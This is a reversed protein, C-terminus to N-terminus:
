IYTNRAINFSRARKPLFLTSIPRRKADEEIEEERADEAAGEVEHVLGPDLGEEGLGAAALGGAALLSDLLFGLDERARFGSTGGSGIILTPDWLVVEVSGRGLPDLRAAAGPLALVGILYRGFSRPATQRFARVRVIFSRERKCYVPEPV